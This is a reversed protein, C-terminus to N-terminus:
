ESLGVRALLVAPPIAEKDVLLIVHLEVLHPDHQAPAM